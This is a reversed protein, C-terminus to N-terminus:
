FTKTVGAIVRNIEINNEASDVSERYTIYAYDLSVTLKDALAYGVGAAARFRYPPTIDTINGDDKDEIKEANFELHGVTKGTLNRKFNGGVGFRTSLLNDVEIDRLESYSTFLGMTGNRLTKELAGSYIREETSSRVPDSNYTVLTNLSAKVTDFTHTLAGNWYPGSFSSGNDYFFWTYGGQLSIFSKDAYQWRFGLSPTYRDYDTGESTTTYTYNFDSNVEMNPSVKGTAAMFAGHEEKDIGTPEDFYTENGYYYGTKILINTRPRLVIYPKVTLLNQDAQDLFLSESTRDRNVDLSIRRYTDVFDVFLFNDIVRLNGKADLSHTIEDERSERAYYRYDFTYSIDWDWFPAKYKLDLGPLARTIFEGRRDERTEFVNDTYEEQVTISPKLLYNAPLAPVAAVLLQFVVTGTLTASYRM